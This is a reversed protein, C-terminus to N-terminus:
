FPTEEEKGEENAEVENKLSEKIIFKQFLNGFLKMRFGKSGNALDWASGVRYWVTQKQGDKDTYEEPSVVEYAKKKM